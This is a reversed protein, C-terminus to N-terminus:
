LALKGVYNKNNMNLILAAGLDKGSRGEILSFSFFNSGAVCM